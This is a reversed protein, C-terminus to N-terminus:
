PGRFALPLRSQRNDIASQRNELKSKRGELPREFVLWAGVILCGLCVLIMASILAMRKHSKM